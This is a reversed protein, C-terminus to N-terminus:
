YSGKWFRKDAFLDPIISVCRLGLNSLAQKMQGVNDPRIDWTGVLEIGEVHPIKAAREMMTLTDPNEKYGSCFRDRTNGLNGLIVSYKRKMYKSNKARIAFVRDFVATGYGAAVSQGSARM